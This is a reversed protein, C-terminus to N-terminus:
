TTTAVTVDGVRYLEEHKSHKAKLRLNIRIYSLNIHQKAVPPIQVWAYMRINSRLDFGKSWEPVIAILNNFFVLTAGHPSRVWSRRSM